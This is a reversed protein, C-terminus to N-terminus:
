LDSNANRLEAASEEDSKKTEDYAAQIAAVMKRMGEMLDNYHRKLKSDVDKLDEVFQGDSALNIKELINNVNEYYRDCQEIITNVSILIGAITALIAVVASASM